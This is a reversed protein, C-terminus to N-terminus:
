KAPRLRGLTIRVSRSIQHLIDARFQATLFITNIRAVSSSSPFFLRQICVYKRSDSPRRSLRCCSIRRHKYAVRLGIRGSVNYESQATEEQMKSPYLSRLQKAKYIAFTREVPPFPQYFLSFTLKSKNIHEIM